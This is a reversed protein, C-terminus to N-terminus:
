CLTGWLIVDDDEYKWLDLVRLKWINLGQNLRELFFSKNEQQNQTGQRTVYM